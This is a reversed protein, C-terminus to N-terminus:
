EKKEQIKPRLFLVTGFAVAFVTYLVGAAWLLPIDSNKSISKMWVAAGVAFHMFNGVAVPRSYIGGILIDKAMWNVMAFGLYQAGLIQMVLLPMIAPEISGIGQLIEQPLFSASLGLIGMFLASSM